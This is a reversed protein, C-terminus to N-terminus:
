AKGTGSVAIGEAHQQILWRAKAMAVESRAAAVGLAFAADILQQATEASMRKPRATRKPQPRRRDRGTTAEDHVVPTAQQDAGWSPVPGTDVRNICHRALASAWPRFLPQSRSVHDLEDYLQEPVAGNVAFGYLASRPGPHLHAAILRAISGPVERQRRTAQDIGQQVLLRDARDPMRVPLLHDAPYRGAARCPGYEDSWTVHVFKGWDSSAPEVDAVRVPGLAPEVALENCALRGAPRPVFLYRPQVQGGSDRALTDAAIKAAPSGQTEIGGRPLQEM